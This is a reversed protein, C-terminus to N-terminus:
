ELIDLKPSVSERIATIDGYRDGSPNEVQIKTDRDSYAFDIRLDARDTFLVGIGYYCLMERITQQPQRDANDKYFYPCFAWLDVRNGIYKRGRYKSIIQDMAEAVKRGARPSKMHKCEIGIWDYDDHHVLLDARHNSNHPSVERIATWGHSEFYDELWTQLADENPFDPLTHYLNETAM